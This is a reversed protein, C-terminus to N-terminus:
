ANHGPIIYSLGSTSSNGIKQSVVLNIEMTTVCAQVRLALPPTNGKRWMRSLMHQGKLIKNYGNQHTYLPIESDNQNVNGDHSLVNSM